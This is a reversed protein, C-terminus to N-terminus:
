CPSPSPSSLDTIGSMPEEVEQISQQISIRSSGPDVKSEERDPSPVLKSPRQNPYLQVISSSQAFEFPSVDEELNGIEPKKSSQVVTRPHQIQFEPSQNQFHSPTVEEVFQEQLEKIHSQQLNDIHPTSQTINDTEYEDKNQLNPKKATMAEENEMMDQYETDNLQNRGHEIDTM